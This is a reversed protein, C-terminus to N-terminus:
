PSEEDCLHPTPLSIPLAPSTENLRTGKRDEAIAIYNAEMVARQAIERNEDDWEVADINLIADMIGDARELGLADTVHHIDLLSWCAAFPFVPYYFLFGICMENLTSPGGQKGRYFLRQRDPTVNFSEQIKLRLGEIKTVEPILHTNCLGYSRFSESGPPIFHIPFTFIGVMFIASDYQRLENTYFIRIGSNDVIGQKNEFNSYHIEIRIYQPDKETGIPVGTEPHYDFSNKIRFDYPIMVDPYVIDQFIELFFISKRFTHDETIQFESDEGFVVIMRLTDNEIEQDNPDCTFWKRWVRLVSHTDNRSLNILEYNQTEDKVPPWDGEMHADYFFPEEEENWGGVVFDSRNLSAGPSLGLAVWSALPTQIELVIEQMERDYGWELLAVDESEKSPIERSFPLDLPGQSRLIPLVGTLLLWVNRWMSVKRIKM